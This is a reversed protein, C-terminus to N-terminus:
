IEPALRTAQVGSGAPGGRVVLYILWAGGTLLSLASIPALVLATPTALFFLFTGALLAGGCPRLMEAALSRWQVALGRRARWLGALAMVSLWLVSGAAVAVLGDHALLAAIAVGGLAEAAQWRPERPNNKRAYAACICSVAAPIAGLLLLQAVPVAGWWRLDILPPLAVAVLGSTMAAPLLVRGARRVAAGPGADEEGALGIEALAEALKAALMYLGAATPGLELGVVLCPAFLRVTPWIAALARGDLAKALDTFHRASWALGIREGPMAWLLVCEVLRQVIIQAVLSWAGAGAWALSLAIGGGAAVGALSAALLTGQRGKRRLTAVPVVSLGGLLPLIALSQFMDPFGPEDVLADFLPAGARLALWIAGGGVIMTVLVTSWHRAEVAPLKVLAQTAIEALLAEAIAIGSLALMFLGYGRPGIMPALVLFVGFWSAHRLSPALYSYLEAVSRRPLDLSVAVM